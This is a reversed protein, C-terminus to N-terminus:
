CVWEGNGGVRLCRIYGVHGVRRGGQDTIKGDDGMDVV